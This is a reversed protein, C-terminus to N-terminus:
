NEVLVGPLPAGQQSLETRAHVASVVATAAALTFHLRESCHAKIIRHGLAQRFQLTHANRM